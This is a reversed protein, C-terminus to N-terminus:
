EIFLKHCVSTTNDNLLIYYIGTQIGQSTFEFSNHQSINAQQTIIKGELNILQFLNPQYAHTWQIQYNATNPNHVIKLANNNIDQNSTQQTVLINKCYTKHDCVESSKPKLNDYELCLSFMGVEPFCINTISTDTFDIEIGDLTWTYLEVCHQPCGDFWFNYCSDLHANGVLDTNLFNRICDSPNPEKVVITLECVNANCGNIWLYYVQCPELDVAFNYSFQPTCDSMCIVPNNCTCDKVLGYQIGLNKQTCSGIIFEFNTIGGTTTFAWWMTSINNSMGICETCATANINETLPCKYGSLEFPSCLVTTSQCSKQAPPTCQASIWQQHALLLVLTITKIILSDLHQM